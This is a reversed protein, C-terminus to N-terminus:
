EFEVDFSAEFQGTDVFSPRRGRKAYPHKFRHSVGRMAAETPVGKILGVMEEGALYQRFRQVIQGKAAELSANNTPAGMLLNEINEEINKEIAGVIMSSNQDYFTGIVGYKEELFEAVEGTTVFEKGSKDAAYPVDHVGLLMKM